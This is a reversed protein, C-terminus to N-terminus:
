CAGRVEKQGLIQPEFTDLQMFSISNSIYSLVRRQLHTIINRAAPAWDQEEDLLQIRVSGRVKM